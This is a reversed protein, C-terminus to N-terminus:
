YSRIITRLYAAILAISYLPQEPWLRPSGAVGRAATAHLEANIATDLDAIARLADAREAAWAAAKRPTWGIKQTYASRRRENIEDKKRERWAASAAKGCPQCYTSGESVVNECGKSRCRKLGQIV